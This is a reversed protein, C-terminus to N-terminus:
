SELPVPYDGDTFAGIADAPVAASTRQNIARIQEPDVKPERRETVLGNREQGTDTLQTYCFGAVAPSDLLADVLSRYHAVFTAADPVAGYWNWREADVGLTMGGFETIMVPQQERVTGPVLVPRYIPQVTSLTRDLAEPSGYRARFTDGSASYDHVTLIDTVVQEWGDNGVVPRTPDLAKTLSYLARVLHQQPASTSVAAVGWSENFPVWAIVCPHSRDREVVELWERTLRGVTRESFAYAAPMEAWVLLGQRDCEALFRPDAVHQHLRLGNFGLSRALRVEARLAAEDPAALHSDPWFGQELALRLYYPRGNLLFHGGDASCSRMATYSGVRDVVVDGDLLEVAADILNPHEPAWLVRDRGAFSATTPWTLERHLEDGPIAYTDDAVAEGHLSLRVRLRLPRGDVRHLRVQVGLRSTAVDPTWHLQDIRNASVEELWVPQWIGSTRGYWIGHPEREWDQKGRPQELDEPRDEARVTVVQDGAARLVSTIDAAFPTHGGEHE